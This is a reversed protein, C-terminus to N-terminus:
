LVGAVYTHSLRRFAGSSADVQDKYTSRPFYRMEEVYEHNWDGPAIRVNGGNVQAAFPDARRAKDGEGGVSNATVDFGALNRITARASDKGGSGPEQELGVMVSEGDIQATQKIIKEREAAEWQGRVVHLVWYMGDFDEGMKVGATYAGDGETGAKDWYRVVARFKQPPTDITLRGVKFMGGGLPVPSQLYQGSYHYQGQLMQSDLVARPLRVSDLLGDVYYPRLEIPKIDPTVEAPLCVHRITDPRSKLLHGTPDNQHLRQMVMYLFSLRKDVKRQVITGDVWRNATALDAESVASEPDIPDDIGLFHAHMGVVTSGTGATLRGGGKTNVYFGKAAQDERLQVDPFLRQYLESLIVDRSLRSLNLGLPTYSHSGVIHRATPMRTWTWPVTMVSLCTSKSTGPPVNVILDYEKEKGAFVREAATQYEDCIVKIHWNWVPNEPVVVHWFMQVFDYFSERVLRRRVADRNIYTPM